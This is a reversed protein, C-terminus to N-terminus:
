AAGKNKLSQERAKQRNQLHKRMEDVTKQNQDGNIYFECILKKQKKMYVDDKGCEM